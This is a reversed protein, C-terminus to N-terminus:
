QKVGSGVATTIKELDPLMWRNEFFEKKPAYFRAMLEFRRAPDTPVWNPEKGPPASPGFYLDVSGDANRQLEPIQSSRSARAVHKILAHTERDYATVSWYQQVPVNAPVNLRYTKAGDYVEGDKDKINILYFQGAGLRKIAIYAYTYAVGRADVAYKNRDAYTSSQGEVAEPLAPSTWHTGAYFAPFGADYPVALLLKAEGVASSLIAQTKSDPAFPKGKEIGITRLQDIMARDREIWPEGQVVRNLNEFFSLDYRVTSDYEVDKVDTFVTAPPNDAASLPYVKVRKGYAIAAAVDADGHSKMSSRLLAYGGFTDSPLASYGDPVKEKYGPPLIVFKGGAGKDIGLLGVDELSTQWVTVVNGNLSGNADGPPVDIVIPGVDKTNFFAMFYIADPNPTLTQNHWDLPRGWYIVQNVKGQTKTLMEQLMLETNVASMGWVVAEIARRNINRAALEEPPITQAHAGAAAFIIALAGLISRRM